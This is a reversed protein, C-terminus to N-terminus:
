TGYAIWCVSCSLKSTTNNFVRIKASTASYSAVAVTLGGMTGNTNGSYMGCIVGTCSSLSYSITTEGYSNAAASISGTTGFAIKFGCKTLTGANLYIPQM